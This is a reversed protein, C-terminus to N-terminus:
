FIFVEMVLSNKLDRVGDIETTLDKFEQTTEPFGLGTMWNHIAMYNVMNEDVLFRLLFIEMLLNIELFM